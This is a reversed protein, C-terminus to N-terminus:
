LAHLALGALPEPGPEAECHITHGFGNGGKRRLKEMDRTHPPHVEAKPPGPKSDQSCHKGATHAQATM